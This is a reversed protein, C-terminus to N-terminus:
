YGPNQSLKTDNQIESQAIPYLTDNAQWSSKVPELVLTAQNTRKLDLWRHGWEAFLEIRREQAVANICETQSLSTPLDPLGARERIINLDSIAAIINNLNLAAEARILYLEALRLVTEYETNTTGTKVKYKFPYYNNQGNTTDINIWSLFRNDGPEFSQVLGSSLTIQAPSSSPGNSLIFYNGEWTNVGPTVPQLQWIAETNDALFVQTLDSQLNYLSTNNIIATSQDIAGQWNHIYLYVRALLAGAASQNPRIREGGGVSYDPLLSGQADLLDQIIQAYITSPDTRSMSDNITYSTQLVLPVAGWLNVLYFYSTARIFKAEGELERSVETSVGNAKSLGEIIANAAYIYQYGQGWLQKILGNTAKLNNTALESQDTSFSYNQFEDASLGCDLTLGGGFLGITVDMMNSYIGVVAATATADNTFVTATILQTSPPDITVFKACGTFITFAFLIFYKLTSTKM